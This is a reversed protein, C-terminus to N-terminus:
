LEAIGEKCARTISSTTLPLARPIERRDANTPAIASVARRVLGERLVRPVALSVLATMDGSELDPREARDVM